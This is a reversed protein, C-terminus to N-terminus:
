KVTSTEVQKEKKKKRRFLILLFLLIAISIIGVAAILILDLGANENEWANTKELLMRRHLEGVESDSQVLLGAERDWHITGFDEVAWLIHRNSGAYDYCEEGDIDIVGHDESFISHGIELDAPIINITHGGLNVHYTESYTQKQGGVNESEWQIEVEEDSVSIVEGKISVLYYWEPNGGTWTVSYDFWDGKKLGFTLENL